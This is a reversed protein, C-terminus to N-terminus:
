RSASVLQFQLKANPNDENKDPHRSLALTKYAAKIIPTTAWRSVELIGYYDDDAPDPASMM